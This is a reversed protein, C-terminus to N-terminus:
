DPTTGGAVPAAEDPALGHRVQKNHTRNRPDTM